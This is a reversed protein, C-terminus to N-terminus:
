INIKPIVNAAQKMKEDIIKAYIETTRLERHGLRKSVTYIDVGNALMLVANTHRASHFTIHKYIEARHCWELLAMNYHSGYKLDVFVKELAGQREGMLERAEDSIYLYETGLTKQQRFNIRCCDKEDRVKAWTLHSVDTWRLGTLCSFLFARKLVDFKCPMKSLRQVEELTLYERQSESQKFSNIKKSLNESTYGDEYARNLSAKIKNFYSHKTNQSLTVNQLGKANEFYRRIEKAFEEDVEEFTLSPSVFTKLHKLVSCWTGYNKAGTTEQKELVLEKFFDLFPRKELYKNKIGYKGQAYEAKRIALINEAMKLTEENKIREGANKPNCFLYLKLYEQERNHVQKGKENTKSGKYYEIFLSYKGSKLKRKKLSIKM